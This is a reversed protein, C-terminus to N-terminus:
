EYSGGIPLLESIRAVIQSAQDHVPERIGYLRELIEPFDACSALSRYFMFLPGLRITRVANTVNGALALPAAAVFAPNTGTSKLSAKLGQLFTPLLSKTFRIARSDTNWDLSNRATSLEDEFSQFASNIEELDNASRIRDEIERFCERLGSLEDRLSLLVAPLKGSTAASSLVYYAAPSRVVTNQRQMAYDKADLLQGLSRSVHTIFRYTPVCARNVGFFLLFPSRAVNCFFSFRINEALANYLFTRLFYNLDSRLSDRATGGLLKGFLDRVRAVFDPLDYQCFLQFVQDQIAGASRDRVAIGRSAVQDPSIYQAIGLAQRLQREFILRFSNDDVTSRLKRLSVRQIFSSFADLIPLDVVEDDEVLVWVEEHFVVADCFWDFEALSLHTPAKGRLFFDTLSNLTETGIIAVSDRKLTRPSEGQLFKIIEGKLIRYERGVRQAPINGKRIEDALTQRSVRMLDAAETLRLVLNGESM